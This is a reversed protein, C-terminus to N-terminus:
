IESKGGSIASVGAHIRLFVESDEAESQRTPLQWFASEGPGPDNALRPGAPNERDQHPLPQRQAQLAM